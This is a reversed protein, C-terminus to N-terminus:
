RPRPASRPWSASSCGRARARGGEARPPRAAVLRRYVRPAQSRPKIFFIHNPENWISWYTVKPCARTPAPTASARGRARLRRLRALRGQLQRRARRRHGLRARRPRAHDPHPLGERDGQAGPRRLARLRPLRRPRHRRVHAALERGPRPRGREVEGRDAAADAGLAKIENLTADRVAPGPASWTAPPGRGDVVPVAVGVRRGPAALALAFAAALALLPAAAPMHRDSIQSTADTNVGAPTEAAPDRSLAQVCGGAGPQPTRRSRM